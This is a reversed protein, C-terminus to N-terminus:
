DMFGSRDDTIVVHGKKPQGAQECRLGRRISSCSAPQQWKSLDSCIYSPSQVALLRIVEM